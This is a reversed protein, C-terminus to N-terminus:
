CHTHTCYHSSGNGRDDESKEEGHKKGDRMQSTVISAPAKEYEISNKEAEIRPNNDAGDDAPLHAARPQAFYRSLSNIRM